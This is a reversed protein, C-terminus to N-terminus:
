TNDNTFFYEDKIKSDIKELNWQAFNEENYSFVVNPTYTSFGQEM